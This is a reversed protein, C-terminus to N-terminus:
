NGESNDTPIPKFREVVWTDGSQIWGISYEQEDVTARITHTESCAWVKCTGEPFSSQLQEEATKLQGLKNRTLFCHVACAEKALAETSYDKDSEVGDVEYKYGKRKERKKGKVTEYTPPSTDLFVRGRGSKTGNAVVKSGDLALSVGGFAEKSKGEKLRNICRDVYYTKPLGEVTCEKFWKLTPQGDILFTYWPESVPTGKDNYEKHFDYQVIEYKIM